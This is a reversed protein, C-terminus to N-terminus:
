QNWPGFEPDVMRNNESLGDITELDDDTLQLSLSALNDQLHDTSSAKPIASVGRERLWALSVRAESVDHHSAIESMAETDFVEGRALPSYAVPNIDHEESAERVAQQQLLPHCEFQHAFIDHDAYETAEALQDPEFNSVGIRDTVGEDVLQDFAQFTEEPDYAAAPWHVYLLDVSDVGLDDVAQTAAEIADEYGLNSTWVKTALFLDERDVASRAIGDGVLTHNDYAEATDVHRYGMELADSIATPAVEADTLQWTGMGLMPMGDVRPCDDSTLVDAGTPKEDSM